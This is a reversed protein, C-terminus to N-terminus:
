SRKKPMMKIGGALSKVDFGNEKLVRSAFYSNKGLVCVTVVPKKRDLRDMNDRLLPMPINVAGPVPSTDAMAKGRVDVIQVDPNDPWESVTEVLGDRQNTAAFGAINVIDKASGFPPAYALELHVLDDITMKATIATAMVDLRKDVGEQGAAQAGLLVGTEPDWLVTLALPKAGPYYSAHHFDNVTVMGYARGQRILETETWGTTGAAVDFVRVIATGLSGPYPRAKEALFVHDAAVRGQRNAPGGLPVATHDDSLRHTTEVVDGAAYIDPDSTQMFNNVVIHEKKGLALGAERALQSEPEIGISLIVFDADLREGSKLQCELATGKKEFRVVHDNLHLGIGHRELENELLKAMKDGLQPLVHSGNQIVDVSLGKRQLQEAMELGIFGAGVVVARKGKQTVAIIRDMDALNRLTLIRDDDVGPVDPIRPAAGPALMLKDYHIWEDQGSTLNRVLVRKGTRDIQIAETQTRVDLNLLAKLSAPTQVTLVDRTQIEGGIHYPLGCNAFSVDAGREVLIIRINENLRRARAAFSAGAAVGGIVLLQKQEMNKEKM